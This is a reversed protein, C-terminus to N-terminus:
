NQPMFISFVLWYGDKYQKISKVAFGGNGSSVISIRDVTHLKPGHLVVFGLVNDLLDGDLIACSFDNVLRPEFDDVGVYIKDDEHAFLFDSIQRATMM